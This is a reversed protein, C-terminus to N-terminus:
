FKMCSQLRINLPMELSLPVQVVKLLLMFVLNWLILFPGSDFSELNFFGEGLARVFFGLLFRLGHGLGFLVVVLAVEPRRRGGKFFLDVVVVRVHCGAFDQFLLLLLQLAVWLHSPEVLLVLVLVQDSDFYVFLLVLLLQDVTQALLLHSCAGSINRM